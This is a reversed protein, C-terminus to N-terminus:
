KKDQTVPINGGEIIAKSDEYDKMHNKELIKDQNNIKEDHASTIDKLTRNLDNDVKKYNELVQEVSRRLNKKVDEHAKVTENKLEDMAHLKTDLEVKDVEKMTSKVIDSIKRDATINKEKIEHELEETKSKAENKKKEDFDSITKVLEKTTKERKKNEDEIKKESDEKKNNLDKEIEDVKKRIKQNIDVEKQTTDEKANQIEHKIQDNILMKVIGDEKKEHLKIQNKIINLEENKLEEFSKQEQVIKDLKKSKENQDQVRNKLQEILDTARKQRKAQEEDFEKLIEEHNFYEDQNKLSNISHNAEEKDLFQKNKESEHPEHAVHTVLDRPLKAIRFKSNTTTAHACLILLTIFIFNTNTM